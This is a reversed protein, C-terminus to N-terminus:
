FLLRFMNVTDQKSRNNSIAKKKEQNAANQPYMKDQSAYNKTNENHPSATVSIGANTNEHTNQSSVSREKLYDETDISLKLYMDQWEGM